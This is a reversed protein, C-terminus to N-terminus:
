CTTTGASVSGVVDGDLRGALGADAGATVTFPTFSGTPAGYTIQLPYVADLAARDAGVTLGAATHWNPIPKDQYDDFNMGVTYYALGRDTIIVSANFWQLATGACAPLTDVRLPDGLLSRM